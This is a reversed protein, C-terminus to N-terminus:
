YKYEKNNKRRSQLEPLSVDLIISFTIDDVTTWKAASEPQPYCHLTVTNKFNVKRNHSSQIPQLEGFTVKQSLNANLAGAKFQRLLVRYKYNEPNNTRSDNNDENDIHWQMASFISLIQDGSVNATFHELLEMHSHRKQSPKLISTQKPKPSEDKQHPVARVQKGKFTLGAPSQLLSFDGIIHHSRLNYHPSSDEEEETKYIHGLDSHNRHFHKLQSISLHFQPDLLVGQPILIIERINRSTVHGTKLNLLQVSTTPLQRCHHCPM